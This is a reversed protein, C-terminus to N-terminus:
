EVRVVHSQWAFAGSKLGRATVILTLEGSQQEKIQTKISRRNVIRGSSVFWAIKYAEDNRNQIEAELDQPQTSIKAGDAPSTISITPTSTWPSSTQYVPFSTVVRESEDGQKLEIGYRITVFDQGDAFQLLAPPLTLVFDLQVLDLGGKTTTTAGQEAIAAVPLNLPFQSDEFPSVVLPSGDKPSAALISANVVLPDSASKSLALPTYSSGIARLKEIREQPSDDDGCAALTFAALLYMSLCVFLRM